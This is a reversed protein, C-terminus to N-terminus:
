GGSIFSPFVLPHGGPRAIRTLPTQYIADLTPSAIVEAIGGRLAVGGGNLVIASDVAAGALNLDHLAVLVAGGALAFSRLMQVLHAQHSLDLHSSPEDLLLIKTRQALARAILVRQKEGGSLERYRRERLHHADAQQLAEEAAEEDEASEFLGNSRAIRGMAVMERASFGFETAEEQPVFALMSARERPSLDNIRRGLIRVEGGLRTLGGALSRLLTSKGSGNPGLVGMVEGATLELDIGSLVERRPFGCQLSRCSLLVEATSPTM